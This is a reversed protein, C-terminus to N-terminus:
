QISRVKALAINLLSDTFLAAGFRNCGDFGVLRDKQTDPCKDLYDYIGDNDTDAPGFFFMREVFHSMDRPQAINDATVSFGCTDVQDFRARSYNNGVGITYVCVDQGHELKLKERLRALEIMAKEDIREWRTLLLLTSPQRIDVVIDALEAIATHLSGDGMKNLHSADLVQQQMQMPKYEGYVPYRRNEDGADPGTSFVSSFFSSGSYATTTFVGGHLNLEPLTQHFRNLIEVGYEYRSMNRYDDQMAASTDLLVFLNSSKQQLKQRNIKQQLALPSFLAINNKYTSTNYPDVTATDDSASIKVLMESSTCGILFLLMAMVIVAKFFRGITESARFAGLM